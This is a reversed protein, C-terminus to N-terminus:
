EEHGDNRFSFLGKQQVLEAVDNPDPMVIKIPLDYHNRVTEIFRYTQPHLRGTDLSFVECRQELQSMLDILIVDEAGSFSIAINHAPHREFASQILKISNNVLQQQHRSLTTM